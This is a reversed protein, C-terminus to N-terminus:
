YFYTFSIEPDVETKNIKLKNNEIKTSAKIFSYSLEGTIALSSTVFYRVGASLISSLERTKAIKGEEIHPSFRSWKFGLGLYPIAFDNHYHRKIVSYKNFLYKVTSGVSYSKPRNLSTEDVGLKKFQLNASWDWHKNLIYGKAFRLTLNNFKTTTLGDQKLKIKQINWDLSTGLTFYQTAKNKAFTLAPIQLVFLLLSLLKIM